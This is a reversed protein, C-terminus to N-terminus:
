KMKKRVRVAIGKKAQVMEAASREAIGVAVPVGKQIVVVDDGERIESDASEVGISFIDGRIEFDGVFVRYRGKEALIKGGETTLSM